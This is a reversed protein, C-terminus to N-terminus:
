VFEQRIQPNIECADHAPSWRTLTLALYGPASLYTSILEPLVTLCVLLCNFLCVFLFHFFLIKLLHHRSRGIQADRERERVSHYNKNSVEGRKDCDRHRQQGTLPLSLMNM